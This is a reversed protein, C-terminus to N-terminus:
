STAPGARWVSLAAPSWLWLPNCLSAPCVVRPRVADFSWSHWRPKSVPSSPNSSPPLFCCSLWSQVKILTSSRVVPPHLPKIFDTLRMTSIEVTTNQCLALGNNDLLAVNSKCFVGLFWHIFLYPTWVPRWVSHVLILGFSKFTWSHFCM